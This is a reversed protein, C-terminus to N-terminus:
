QALAELLQDDGMGPFPEPALRARAAHAASMRYPTGTAVEIVYWGAARGSWLRRPKM